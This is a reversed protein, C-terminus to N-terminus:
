RNLRVLKLLIQPMFPVACIDHSEYIGKTKTPAHARPLLSICSAHLLTYSM